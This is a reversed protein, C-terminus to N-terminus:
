LVCEYFKKLSQIQYTEIDFEGTTVDGKMFDCMGQYLSDTNNEVLHGYRGEIASRAGVIDTSVIPKGLIMSELLVMPQGEHNSSLVFCDARALLSFPNSRRGLMLIKEQLGLKNILEELEVRLLGDGLIILLADPYDLQLKNFSNILKKHDKELSLRGMTIFIKKGQTFLAEDDSGLPEESLAIVERPNHLNEVFCFIETDLNFRHALSEINLKMTQESVSIIKNFHRYINFTNELNPFRSTWESYLDNHQYIVKKAGQADASGLIASWFRSYGSFEILSDFKVGGLMRSYERSNLGLFVDEMNKTYFYKTSYFKNEVWHEEITRNMRGVRPIVRVYSPLKNFQEINEPAGSVGNPDIILCVIYESPDIGNMLNIVSTTIGNPAFEGACFLLKKKSTKYIIENKIPADHIFWRLVRESVMGDEHPVFKEINRPYLPHNLFEEGELDNLVTLTKDKLEDVNYAVVGPLESADFYLGRESKYEEYDDLFYIIPRGTVMYDFGISSYDTILVDVVGLLHNTTLSQPAVIVDLNNQYIVEDIFYHGRYLINADLSKLANVEELVKEVNSKTGGLTGRWTPAYLVNKKSNHIGLSQLIKKKDLEQLNVTLDIRPYGEEAIKGPYIEDIHYREFLVMTTHKNPSLMHTTQLFNRQTNKHEMFSNKIDIGMSKWPTGHWTNLYKQGEKRSFYAPFTANNILYSSSCLYRLYLDSGKRVFYINKVKKFSEDVVSMDNIVWVFRWGQYATTKLMESFLAFPSCNMSVGDFSEFVVVEPEVDVSQQYEAFDAAIRFDRSKAYQGASIGYGKQIIRTNRFARCAERYRGLKSLSVGLRYYWAPKHDNSRLVAENYSEYAFDWNCQAEYAEGLNFWLEPQSYDDKLMEIYSGLVYDNGDFLKKYSKAKDRISQSAKSEQAPVYSENTRLYIVAAEEYKEAKDLVYAWRYFWYPIHKPANIAAYEYCVAAEQYKAQRERVFGLKYHWELDKDALSIALAYYKEASVWDHQRQLSMGLKFALKEDRPSTKFKDLYSKYAFDWLDRKEHYVGIGFKSVEDSKDLSIVKLYNSQAAADNGFGDFGEREHCIGASYYWLSDVNKGKLTIAKEFSRSAEKYRKMSELAVGLRHYWDPNSGDLNIARKLAEIELWYKRQKHFSAAMGSHHDANDYDDKLKDESVKLEISSSSPVSFGLHRLAQNLQLQARSHASDYKLTNEFFVKSEAWEEVKFHSMGMKFNGNVHKPNIELAKHFYDQAQKYSGAKYSYIGFCYNLTFNDFM